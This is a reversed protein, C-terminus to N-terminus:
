KCYNKYKLVYWRALAMNAYTVQTARMLEWNGDLNKKYNYMSSETDKFHILFNYEVKDISLDALATDLAEVANVDNDDVMDFFISKTVAVAPRIQQWVTKHLKNIQVALEKHYLDIAEDEMEQRDLEVIRRTLDRVQETQEYILGKLECLQGKLKMIGTQVANFNDLIVPVKELALVCGCCLPSNSFDNVVDQNKPWLESFTKVNM